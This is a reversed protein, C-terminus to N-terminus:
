RTPTFPQLNATAPRASHLPLSKLIMALEEIEELEKEFQVNSKELFGQQIEGFGKSLPPGYSVPGTKENAVFLTNGISQLRSPSAVRALQVNGIVTVTTEGNKTATVTGDASVQVERADEPISIPPQLVVIDSATALCLRRERDLILAGCRTLLEKQRRHVVFFGEGDIALDFPRGTKELQGQKLDLLTSAMRCGEGQVAVDSSKEPRSEDFDASDSTGSSYADVLIIRLRKFGPTAANTLNHRHQSIASELSAASALHDTSNFQIKQSTREAPVEHPRNNLIASDASALKDPLGGLIRPLARLQKRVQLLDRVVGAPLTKLEDFWIEREEKSAHALEDEIVERVASSREELDAKQRDTSIESGASDAPAPVEKPTDASQRQPEGSDEQVDLAPVVHRNGDLFRPMKSGDFDPKGSSSGFPAGTHSAPNSNVLNVRSRVHRSFHQQIAFHVVLSALLALSVVFGTNRAGRM